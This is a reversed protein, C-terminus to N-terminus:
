QVGAIALVEGARIDFEVEDLLRQGNPAFLTLGSVSFAVDGLTPPNKQITLEVDRGVMLAALEDTSATPEASGVVKGLRIVTITDAVAKVERLKHTIFVISTGGDALRRMTAMLED